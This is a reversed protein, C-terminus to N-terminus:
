KDGAKTSVRPVFPVVRKKVTTHDFHRKVRVCGKYISKCNLILRELGIIDSIVLEIGRLMKYPFFSNVKMNM